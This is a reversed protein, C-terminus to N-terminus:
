IFVLLSCHTGDARETELNRFGGDGIQAAAQGIGTPGLALCGLIPALAGREGVDLFDAFVPAGTVDPAMTLCPQVRQRLEDGLDVAEVDLKSVHPRAVFIRQRHDHRVAPRTRHDLEEFHDARQGVGGSVAAAGGVGKVHDTRRQGAKTERAFGARGAPFHRANAAGPALEHRAKAIVAIDGLAAVPTRRHSVRDAHRFGRVARRDVDVHRQRRRTFGM